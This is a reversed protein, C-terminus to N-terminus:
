LIRLFLLCAVAANAVEYVGYTYRLGFVVAQIALFLMCAPACFRLWRNQSDDLSKGTLKEMTKCELHQSSIVKPSGDGM